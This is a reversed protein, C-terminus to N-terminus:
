SSQYIKGFCEYMDKGYQHLEKNIGSSQLTQLTCIWKDEFYERQARSKSLGTQLILVKLDGDQHNKHFHEALESNDPRKKIDYRHKSFRDCLTDGTQGVYIKNHRKCIAAYILNRSQCNGGDKLKMTINRKENAICETTLIDKCLKCKGCPKTTKPKSKKVDDAEINNRIVYNKISKPRRYAVIPRSLFIKKTATDNELLHKKLISPLQSLNPHWECVFIIQPDKKEQINDELLKSRKIESIEKVTQALDNQHYGRKVFFSSLKRCNAFYEDKDTCIRRIRIFQGKPINAIVHKPHNSAKNLYLFADTPKTYLNTKLHGDKLTVTVDLFHLNTTSKNM